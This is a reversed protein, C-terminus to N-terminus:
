TVSSAAVLSAKTADLIEKSLQPDDVMRALVIAGVMEAMAAIAKKRREANSGGPVIQGLLELYADLGETLVSRVAKGDRAADGSLAAFVCGNGRADRHRESVYFEVLEALPDSGAREIVALWHERGKTLASECAQAALDEKSKFHGYFGGHTLGAAQMLDAVGIGNFGRERFLQGAIDIIRNRNREAQARSVKM